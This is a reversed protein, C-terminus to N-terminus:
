APHWLFPDRDFGHSAAENQQRLKVLGFEVGSKSLLRVTSNQPSKHFKEPIKLPM